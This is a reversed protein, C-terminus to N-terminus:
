GVPLVLADNVANVHGIVWRNVDRLMDAHLKSTTPYATLTPDAGAAYMLRRDREANSFPTVANAIGHGLFVRMRRVADLRFVPNGDTPRPIAGNLAVVGAVKGGLAFAARYAAAAGENVGVLYVRESHIHYTRRTQEVANLVFDDVDADPGGWGCAPKGDSRSGLNEPGRLSVAVFNRRSIRPALRLVQEENSGQGHFLVLLPYPYRPEYGEPLFTRVARGPDTALETAYYGEAPRDARWYSHAPSPM